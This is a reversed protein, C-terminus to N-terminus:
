ARERGFYVDEEICEDAHYAPDQLVDARYKKLKHERCVDCAFCLFIGRADYEAIRDGRECYHNELGTQDIETM